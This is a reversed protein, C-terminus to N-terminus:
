EKGLNCASSKSKLALISPIDGFIVRLSAFVAMSFFRLCLFLDTPLVLVSALVVSRSDFGRSSKAAAFVSLASLTVTITSLELGIFLVSVSISVTAVSSALLHLTTSIASIVVLSVSELLDLLIWWGVVGVSVVLLSFCFSCGFCRGLRCCSYLFLRMGLSGNTTFDCDCGCDFGCDCDFDRDRDSDCDCDRKCDRKCDCDCDCAHVDLLVDM